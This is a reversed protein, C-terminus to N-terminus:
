REHQICNLATSLLQALTVELDPAWGTHMAATIGTVMQSSMKAHMGANMTALQLM